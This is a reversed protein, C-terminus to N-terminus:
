EIKQLFNANLLGRKQLYRIRAARYMQAKREQFSSVREASTKGFSKAAFNKNEIASIKINNNMTTSLVSQQGNNDLKEALSQEPEFKVVGNLIREVTDDINNTIAIDAKIVDMPVQPLIEKVKIAM